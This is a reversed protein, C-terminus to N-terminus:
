HQHLMELGSLVREKDNDPGDMMVSELYPLISRSTVRIIKMVGEQYSTTPDCRLEAAIHAAHLNSIMRRLYIEHVRHYLEVDRCFAAPDGTFRPRQPMLDFLLKSVLLGGAQESM